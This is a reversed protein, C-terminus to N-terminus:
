NDVYLKLMMILLTTVVYAVGFVMLVYKLADLSILIIM